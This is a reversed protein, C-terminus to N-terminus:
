IFVEEFSSREELTILYDKLSVLLDLAFRREFCAKFFQVPLRFGARENTKWAM